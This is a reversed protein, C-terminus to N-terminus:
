EIGRGRLCGDRDDDRLRGRPAGGADHARLARDRLARCPGTLANHYLRWGGAIVARQLKNGDPKGESVQAELFSKLVHVADKHDPVVTSVASLNDYSVLTLSAVAGDGCGKQLM